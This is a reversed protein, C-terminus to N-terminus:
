RESQARLRLRTLRQQARSEEDVEKKRNRGRRRDVTAAGHDADARAARQNGGRGAEEEARKTQGGRGEAAEDGDANEKM